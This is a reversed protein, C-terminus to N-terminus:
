SLTQYATNAIAETLYLRNALASVFPCVCWGLMIGDAGLFRYSRLPRCDLILVGLLCSLGIIRAKTTWIAPLCAPLVEYPFENQAVTAPFGATPLVLWGGLMSILVAVPAPWRRFVWLTSPVWLWLIIAIALPQSM